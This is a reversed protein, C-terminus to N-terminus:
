DLLLPRLEANIYIIDMFEDNDTVNMSRILTQEKANYIFKCQVQCEVPEFADSEVKLTVTYDQIGSNEVAADIKVVTIELNYFYAFSLYDVQLSNNIFSQFDQPSFCDGVEAEWRDTLEQKKAQVEEADPPPTNDSILENSILSAPLLEENPCTFVAYIVRSANEQATRTNNLQRSCAPFNVVMLLILLVCLHKKMIIEM